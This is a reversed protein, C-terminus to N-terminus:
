VSFNDMELGGSAWLFGWGWLFGGFHANLQGLLYIEDILLNFLSEKCVRMERRGGGTWGDLLDCCAFSSCLMGCCRNVVWCVSYRGCVVVSADLLVGDNNNDKKRLLEKM